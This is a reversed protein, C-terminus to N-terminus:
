SNAPKAADALATLLETSMGSLDYNLVPQKQFNDKEYGGLHKMLKEVADLKNYLRVKKTTGIVNEGFGIEDVDFQSILKRTSLPMKRVDLMAGTEEDFMSAPDFDVMGALTQVLKDITPKNRQYAEHQIESIRLSINPDKHIRCAEVAVVNSNMYEADYALRYATSQNGCIVYNQCYSEQKPSLAM